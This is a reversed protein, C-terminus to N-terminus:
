SKVWDRFLAETRNWLGADVVPGARGKVEAAWGLMESVYADIAAERPGEGVGEGEAQKRARLDGLAEATESPLSLGALLAPLNMPMPEGPRDRLWQLAAAPRIVYFYKKLRVTERNDIFAAWQRRALGLYHAVDGHHNRWAQVIPAVADRFGAAEGYVIPSTLWESVVANGKSALVLAKGLDWGGVDLDDVIPREIVDRPPKLSLYADLGRVYLFRVDYDSDPSHFGWARSGSEVALLVRAGDERAVEALRAKIRVRQAADVAGDPDYDLIM